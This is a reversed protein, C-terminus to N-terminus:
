TTSFRGATLSVWTRDRPQSCGRSCSIAVWELIKEQLIGHVSSGPPSCVHPRLLWVCRSPGYQHQKRVSISCTGWQMSMDPLLPHQQSQYFWSETLPPSFTQPPLPLFYRTQVQDEPIRLNQHKWWQSKRSDVHFRQLKTKANFSKRQGPHSGPQKKFIAKTIKSKPIGMGEGHRPIRYSCGRSKGFHVRKNSIKCHWLNPWLLM